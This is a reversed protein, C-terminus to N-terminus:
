KILIMKRTEIFSKTELKYFYVGSPYKSADWDANYIGANMTENALTEIERGLLDFVTLKVHGANSLQFKINTTPNFPNPFNQYLSFDSPVENSINQIGTAGGTTTSTIVGNDGAAWGRVSDSMFISFLNSTTGSVQAVWTNGSDNSFRIVGNDGATWVKKGSSSISRLSSSIGTNIISWNNGGNSLKAFNGASTVIKLLFSPGGGEYINDNLPFPRVSYISGTTYLVTGNNGFAFGTFVNPFYLSNLTQTSNSTEPLWSAGGNASAIITGNDGCCRLAFNSFYVGTFFICRLTYGTGSTQVTWNNGGNTTKLITGGSGCAFLNLSDAFTISYLDNSTGSNLVVWNIGGNSTKLIKGTYGCCFGTQSNVFVIKTLRTNVGSSQMVWGQSYAYTINFLIVAIIYYKKM